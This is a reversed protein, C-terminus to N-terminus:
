LCAACPEPGEPHQIGEPSSPGTTPQMAGEGPSSSALKWSWHVDRSGQLVASEGRGGEGGVGRHLGQTQGQQRVGDRLRPIGLPLAGFGGHVVCPSHDAACHGNLSPPGLDALPPHQALTRPRPIGLLCSAHPTHHAPLTRLTHPPCAPHTPHTHQAPLTRPPPHQAPLTRPPTHQAPLNRLSPATCVPQTPLTSHLGLQEPQTM